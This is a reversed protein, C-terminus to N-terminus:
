ESKTSAVRMNRLLIKGGRDRYVAQLQHRDQVYSPDLRVAEQFASAAEFDHNLHHLAKGKAIWAGANAADAETWGQAFILLKSWHKEAEISAAQMFYPQEESPHEWFAKDAVQDLRSVGSASMALAGSVWEMPLAFHFLGGARAKFTIIGVLHGEEDFLGGGSQGLTFSASIQIVNAGDYHHLAVIQGDSSTLKGGGPYGVAHVTEGTKLENAQAFGPVEGVVGPASLICVDHQIDRSQFKVRCKMTGRIVDIRSAARTVHCNTVLKGPAVLVASGINITGNPNEALVKFVSSDPTFPKAPVDGANAGFSVSLGLLLVITATRV